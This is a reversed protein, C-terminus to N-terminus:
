RVLISRIHPVIVAEGGKIQVEIDVPLDGVWSYKRESDETRIYIATLYYTGDAVDLPVKCSLAFTGNNPVVETDCRFATAMDKQEPSVPDYTQWALSAAQVRLNAALQTVIVLAAGRQVTRRPAALVEPACIFIILAVAFLRRSKVRGGKAHFPSECM